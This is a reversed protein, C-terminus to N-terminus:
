TAEPEVAKFHDGAGVLAQPLQVDEVATDEAYWNPIHACCNTALTLKVVQKALEVIAPSVHITSGTKPTVPDDIVLIM